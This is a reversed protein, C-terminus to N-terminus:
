PMFAAPQLLDQFQAQLPGVSCDVFLSTKDGVRTCQRRMTLYSEMWKIAGVSLNFNLLAWHERAGFTLPAQQKHKNKNNHNNNPQSSSFLILIIVALACFNRNRYLNNNNNNRKIIIIKIESIPRPRPHPLIARPRGGCFTQSTARATRKLLMYSIQCPCTVDWSKFFLRKTGHGLGLLFDAMKFKIDFEPTNKAM